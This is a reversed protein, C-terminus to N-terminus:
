INVFNELVKIGALRSKEPHFQVGYVNNDKISAVFKYGNHKSFATVFSGGSM